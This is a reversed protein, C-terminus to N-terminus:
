RGGTERLKLKRYSSAFDKNSMLETFPIDEYIQTIVKKWADETDVISQSSALSQDVYFGVRAGFYQKDTAVVLETMANSTDTGSRKRAEAWLASSIAEGPYGLLMGFRINHPAWWDKLWDTPLIGDEMLKALSREIIFVWEIYAYQFPVTLNLPKWIKQMCQFQAPIANLATLSVLSFIEEGPYASEAPLEETFRYIDHKALVADLENVQKNDLAGDLLHYPSEARLNAFLLLASPELIFPLAAPVTSYIDKIILVAKEVAELIKIPPQKYRLEQFSPASM